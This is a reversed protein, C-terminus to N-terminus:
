SLFSRPLASFGVRARAARPRVPVNAAWPVPSSRRPLLFCGVRVIPPRWVTHLPPCVACSRTRTLLMSPSLSRKAGLPWCIAWMVVYIGEFAAARKALETLFATAHRGLTGFETVAFSIFRIDPRNRVGESYKEFKTKEVRRLAVEPSPRSSVGFLGSVVADLAPKSGRIGHYHLVGVDAPLAENGNPLQVLMTPYTLVEVGAGLAGRVESIIETLTTVLWSHVTHVSADGGCRALHDVLPNAWMDSMDVDASVLVGRMAQVSLHCSACAIPSRLTSLIHSPPLGFIRCVAVRFVADYHERFKDRLEGLRGSTPMDSALFALAGQGLRSVFRNSEPWACNSFTPALKAFRLLNVRRV